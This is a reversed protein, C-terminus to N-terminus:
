ENILVKDSEVGFYPGNKFEFFITDDELVELSHGGRFIVICDGSSLYEEIIFKDDLDYFKAKVKGKLIIWAEQTLDTKRELKNHKHPSVCFNKQLHRGSVQLYENNPSIDTRKNKIENFKLLSFLIINTNIKSFIQKM